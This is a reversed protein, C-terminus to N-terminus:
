SRIQDFFSIKWSGLLSTCISCLHLKDTAVWGPGVKPIDCHETLNALYQNFEQIRDSHSKSAMKALRQWELTEWQEFVAEWGTPSSWRICWGTRQRQKQGSWEYGWSSREAAHHRRRDGELLFLGGIALFWGVLQFCRTKNSPLIYKYFMVPMLLILKLCLYICKIWIKNSNFYIGNLLLQCCYISNPLSTEVLILHTKTM